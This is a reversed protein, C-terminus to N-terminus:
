KFNVENMFDTIEKDTPDGMETRAAYGWKFAEVIRQILVPTEEDEESIDYGNLINLIYGLIMGSGPPGVSHLTINNGIDMSIPEEWRM